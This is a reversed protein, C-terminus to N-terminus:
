PLSVFPLLLGVGFVLIWLVVAAAAVVVLSLGIMQALLDSLWVVLLCVVRRGNANTAMTTAETAKTM